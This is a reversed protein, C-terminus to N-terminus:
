TEARKVTRPEVLGAVNQTVMGRQHAVKLARSLVRHARLVTANSLGSDTLQRYANEIHDPKLKDIGHSGILPRLYLRILSEYSELTRPRVRGAAINVRWHDLWESVTTGKGARPVTGSARAVELAQMKSVCDAQAKAAVHRRDLSGDPKTGVTVYGHWRRDSKNFIMSSQGDARKRSM